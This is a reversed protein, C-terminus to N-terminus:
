PVAATRYDLGDQQVSRFQARGYLQNSPQQEMQWVRLGRTLVVLYEVISGLFAAYMRKASNLSVIRPTIDFDKCFALQADLIWSQGILAGFWWPGSLLCAVAHRGGNWVTPHPWDAYPGRHTPRM